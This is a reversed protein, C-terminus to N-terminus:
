KKRKREGVSAKWHNAQYDSKFHILALRRNMKNKQEGKIAILTDKLQEKM